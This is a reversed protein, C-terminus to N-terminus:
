KDREKLMADAIRYAASAFNAAEDNEEPRSLRASVSVVSQHWPPEAILAAVAKAAFYDRLTMGPEGNMVGPVYDVPFASPNFLPQNMRAIQANLHTVVRLLSERLENGLGPEAMRALHAAVHAADAQNMSM